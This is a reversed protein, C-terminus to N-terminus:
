KCIKNDLSRYVMMSVFHFMVKGLFLWQYTFVLAWLEGVVELTLRHHVLHPEKYHFISKFCTCEDTSWLLMCVDDNILERQICWAVCINTAMHIHLYLKVVIRMSEEEQTAYVSFSWALMWGHYDLRCWELYTSQKEIGLYACHTYQYTYVWLTCM